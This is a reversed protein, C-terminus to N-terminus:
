IQDLLSLAAGPMMGGSEILRLIEETSFWRFADVEGDVIRPAFDQSLRIRFSINSESLWGGDVPSEILRSGMREFECDPAELGCEEFAERRMAELPTEGAAVM